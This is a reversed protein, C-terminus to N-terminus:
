AHNHPRLRKLLIRYQLRADVADLMAHTLRLSQDTGRGVVVHLVNVAERVALFERETVADAIREIMEDVLRAHTKM